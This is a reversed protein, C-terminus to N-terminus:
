TITTSCRYVGIIGEYSLSAATSIALADHGPTHTRGNSSSSFGYETEQINRINAPTNQSCSAKAGQWHFVPTEDSVSVMDIGFIKPSNEIMFKVLSVQSLISYVRLTETIKYAQWDCKLWTNQLNFIHLESSESYTLQLLIHPWANNSM